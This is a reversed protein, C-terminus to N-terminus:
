SHQIDLEAPFDYDVGADVVNLAIGHQRCFVNIAAGGAVFNMVMQATVAKPYASVGSDTLGHDAAFVLLNPNTIKPTLSNQRRCIQFALLELDGLAGIPKTKNNILEWIVADSIM